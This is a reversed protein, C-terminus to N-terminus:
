QGDAKIGFAASSLNPPKTKNVKRYLAAEAADKGAPAFPHKRPIQRRQEAPM